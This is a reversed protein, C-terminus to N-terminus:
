RKCGIHKDNIDTRKIMGGFFGAKLYQCGTMHDTYLFMGSRVKNQRDDTDDYPKM